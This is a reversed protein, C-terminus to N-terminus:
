KNRIHLNEIDIQKTAYEQNNCELIVEVRYTNSKIFRITQPGLNIIISNGQEGYDNFLAYIIEKDDQTLEGYIIVESIGKIDNDRSNPVM